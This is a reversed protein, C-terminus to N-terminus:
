NLEQLYKKKSRSINLDICIKNTKLKIKMDTFLVFNKRNLSNNLNRLCKKFALRTQLIFTEVTNQKVYKLEFLFEHLIKSYNM